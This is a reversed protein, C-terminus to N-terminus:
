LEHVEEDWSPEWWSAFNDLAELGDVRTGEAGEGYYRKGDIIGSHIDLGEDEVVAMDYDAEIHAKLAEISDFAKIENGNSMFFKRM